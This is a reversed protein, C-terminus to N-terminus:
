PGEYKAIVKAWGEPDLESPNMNGNLMKRVCESADRLSQTLEECKDVHTSTKTALAVDAIDAIQQALPTYCPLCKRTIRDLADRLLQCNECTKV